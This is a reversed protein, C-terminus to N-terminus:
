YLLKTLEKIDKLEEMREILKCAAQTKKSSIAYGALRMFKNKLEGESMSNDPNGKIRDIHAMYKVGNAVIEVTSILKPFVKEAESSPVLEIKKVLTKIKRDSLAEDSFWEPGFPLGILAVAVTYRTNFEADLMTRPEYVSFPRVTSVKPHTKIIIREIKEIDIHNKKKIELAADISAHLFRCCPYPKFGVNLISFEEGLGKTVLEPEFRDSCVMRWFGTDGDLIDPPGSFGQKALLAAMIGGMSAYGYNNKVMTVGRVGWITKLTSPVPTNTGAIGLANLTQNKDLSLLRSTAAAAGFTWSYHGRRAEFLMKKTPEIATGVKILADYGLIISTLLNKGSTGISEGVAISSPIVVSGPHGLPRGVSTDDFDLANNMTSNAYAAHTCVVKGGSGLVTSEPRGGLYAVLGTVVDGVGTKYAGLTCGISDLVCLKAKQVVEDSFEDFNTSVIYEALRETLSAM